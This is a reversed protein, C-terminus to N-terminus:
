VDLSEGAWHQHLNCYSFARVRTTGPPAAFSLRPVEDRSFQPLLASQGFDRLGIVVGDQDRVYITTIWHEATMPHAAAFTVEVEGSRSVSVVPAHMDASGAQPGSPPMSQSWCCQNSAELGDAIQQWDPVLVARESNDESSCGLHALAAVVASAALVETMFGRRSQPRELM